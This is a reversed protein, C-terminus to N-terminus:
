KDQVDVLWTGYLFGGYEERKHAAYFEIDSWGLGVRKTIAFLVELVDAIEEKVEDLNNAEFLEQSEEVLKLKLAGMLDHNEVSATVAIKGSSNIIEPIRDRVLKGSSRLTM